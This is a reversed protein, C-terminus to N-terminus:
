SAPNVSNAFMTAFMALLVMVVCLAGIVITFNRRLSPQSEHESM